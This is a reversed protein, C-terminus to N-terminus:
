IKKYFGFYFENLKIKLQRQSLSAPVFTWVCNKIINM